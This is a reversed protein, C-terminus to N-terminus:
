RKARPKDKKASAAAESEIQAFPNAPKDTGNPTVKGQAVPTLGFDNMMARLTGAMSATPAEGAAYLQVIKGHMACMHGLSALGADTLLGNVFLIPTLRDWEAVAHANPMWAPAAPIKDVLPLDVVVGLTPERSGDILKLSPPKRPFPM